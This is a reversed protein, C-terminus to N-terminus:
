VKSSHSVRRRWTLLLTPRQARCVRLLFFPSPRIKQRQGEAKIPSGNMTRRWHPFGAGGTHSYTLGNSYYTYSNTRNIELDITKQLRGADDGSTSYVNTTTLGGPFSVRLRTIATTTTFRRRM